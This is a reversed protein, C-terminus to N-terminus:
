MFSLKIIGDTLACTCVAPTISYLGYFVKARELGTNGQGATLTKLNQQLSIVNRLIKKVGNENMFRIYRSGSILVQEM